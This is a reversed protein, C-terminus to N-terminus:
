TRLLSPRKRQAAALYFWHEAIGCSHLTKGRSHELPLCLFHLCLPVSPTFISLHRFPTSLLNRRCGAGSSAPVPSFFGVSLPQNKSIQHRLVPGFGLGGETCFILEDVKLGHIRHNPWQANVNIVSHEVTVGRCNSSRNGRSTCCLQAAQESALKQPAALAPMVGKSVMPGRAGKTGVDALILLWQPNAKCAKM